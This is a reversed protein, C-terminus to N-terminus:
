AVRWSPWRMQLHKCPRCLRKSQLRPRQTPVQPPVLRLQQSSVQDWLRLQATASQPLPGFAIVILAAALTARKVRLFRRSPVYDTGQLRASARPKHMLRKRTADMTPWKLQRLALAHACLMARRAACHGTTSQSRNLCQLRSSQRGHDHARM